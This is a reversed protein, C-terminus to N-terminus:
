RLRESAIEFETRNNTLFLSWFLTPVAPFEPSAPRISLRKTMPFWESDMVASAASSPIRLFRLLVNRALGCRFV